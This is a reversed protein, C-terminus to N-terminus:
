VHRSRTSEQSKTTPLWVALKVGSGEKAWLKHQLHGFPEHSAIKRCRCKLAKGVTYFVGWPSTNKKKNDLESTAPTGSSELNGNKPTHTEDECKGWLPTAVGNAYKLWTAQSKPIQLVWIDSRTSQYAFRKTLAQNNHDLHLTPFPTMDLLKPWSYVQSPNRM